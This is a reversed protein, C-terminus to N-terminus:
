ITGGERLFRTADDHGGAFYQDLYHAPSSVLMRSAM